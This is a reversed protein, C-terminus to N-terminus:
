ISRKNCGNVGGSLWQITLKTAFRLALNVKVSFKQIIADLVGCMTVVRMLAICLDWDEDM